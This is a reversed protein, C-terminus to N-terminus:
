LWEGYKGRNGKKWQDAMDDLYTYLNKHKNVYEKFKKLGWENRWIILQRVACQYRIENSM